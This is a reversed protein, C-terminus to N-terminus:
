TWVITGLTNIYASLLDVEEQTMLEMEPVITLSSEVDSPIFSLCNDKCFEYCRNNPFTVHLSAVENAGPCATMRGVGNNDIHMRIEKSTVEIADSFTIVFSM